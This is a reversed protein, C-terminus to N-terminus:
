GILSIANLDSVLKMEDSTVNVAFVSKGSVYRSLTKSFKSENGSSSMMLRRERMLPIAPASASDNDDCTAFRFVTLCPDLAIVTLSQVFKRRLTSLITKGSM